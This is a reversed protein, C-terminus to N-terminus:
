PDAVQLCTAFVTVVPIVPVLTALPTHVQLHWSNVKGRLQKHDGIMVIRRLGAPLSALVHAELIEAAEELMVTDIGLVDLIDSCCLTAQPTSRM